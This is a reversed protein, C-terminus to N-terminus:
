ATRGEYKGRRKGRGLARQLRDAKVRRKSDNKWRVIKVCLICVCVRVRHRVKDPKGDREGVAQHPKKRVLGGKRPKSGNQDPHKEHCLQVCRVSQGGEGEPHKDARRRFSKLRATQSLILQCVVATFLRSIYISRRIRITVCRIIGEYIQGRNM